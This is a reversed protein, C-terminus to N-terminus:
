GAPVAGLSVPRGQGGPSSSAKKEALSARLRQEEDFLAMEKGLLNFIMFLGFFIAGLPLFLGWLVGSLSLLFSVLSVGLLVKTQTTMDELRGAQLIDLEGKKALLVGNRAPGLQFSKEKKGPHCDTLRGASALCWAV